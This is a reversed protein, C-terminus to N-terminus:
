IRFGAFSKLDLMYLTPNFIIKFGVNMMKSVFNMMKFLVEDNLICFQRLVWRRAVRM